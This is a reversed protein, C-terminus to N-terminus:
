APARRLNAYRSSRRSIKRGSTLFRAWFITSRFSVCWPSRGHCRYAIDTAFAWAETVVDGVGVTTSAAAPIWIDLADTRQDVSVGLSLIDASRAEFCSLDSALKEM